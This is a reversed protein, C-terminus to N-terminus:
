SCSVHGGSFLDDADVEARGVGNDGHHFALFGLDDGIGLAGAERRRDNRERILAFGEDAFGRAALGDGVGGLGDVGDLPEHAAAVVLHGRFFLHDGVADGAGGVVVHLDLDAVFLEGRRLDGGLREALQLLRGLGVEAVLDVLRHDGDRGVEVVGLALGGFVGALDGAELDRPDDVLRGGRRQRVAEILLALLRDADEVEAAAREVDRDQFDGVADEADDARVAVGVEAAVVEVLLQDVVDGVFELGVLADVEARVRHGQLAELLRALLRLLLEAGGLLGVDVQREDGGVRGARLVELDRDGAGLELLQDVAQDLAHRRRDHLRELVRFEVRRLDVLDDEDAARGADGLHLSTTLSIKPLSGWM